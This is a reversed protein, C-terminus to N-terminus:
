VLDSLPAPSVPESCTRPRLRSSCTYVGGGGVPVDLPLLGRPGGGGGM